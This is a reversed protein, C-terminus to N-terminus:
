ARMASKLLLAGRQQQNGVAGPIDDFVAVAGNEEFITVDAHVAGGTVHGVTVQILQKAFRYLCRSL